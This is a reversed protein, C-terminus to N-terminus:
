GLVTVIVAGGKRPASFEVPWQIKFKSDDIGSAMALGDIGSKCSAIFNDMDRKRIDPPCFEISFRSAGKPM